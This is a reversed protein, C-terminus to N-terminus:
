AYERRKQLREVQWTYRCTKAITADFQGADRAGDIFRVPSYTYAANKSLGGEFRARKDCGTLTKYPTSLLM